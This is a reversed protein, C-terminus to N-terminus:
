LTSDHWNSIIYKQLLINKVKTHQYLHEFNIHLGSSMLDTQTITMLTTVWFHPLVAPSHQMLRLSDSMWSNITWIYNLYLKYYLWTDLICCLIKIICVTIKWNCHLSDSFKIIACKQCCMYEAMDLFLLSLEYRLSCLCGFQIGIACEATSVHGPTCQVPTGYPPLSCAPWRSLRCCM